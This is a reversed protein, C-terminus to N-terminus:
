GFCKTWILHQTGSNGGGFSLKRELRKLRRLKRKIHDETYL